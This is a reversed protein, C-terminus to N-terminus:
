GGATRLWGDGEKAMWGGGGRYGGMRQLVNGSIGSRLCGDGTYLKYLVNLCKNEVM